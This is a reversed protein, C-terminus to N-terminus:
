SKRSRRAAPSTADRVKRRQRLLERNLASIKEVASWWKRYNAVQRRALPVLEPPLSLQETRGGRFSVSLSTNPHGAGRACHCSPKGCRIRRVLVSGRLVEELDPLGQVVRRRRALLTKL